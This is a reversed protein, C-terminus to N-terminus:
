PSFPVFLKQKKYIMYSLIHELKVTIVKMHYINDLESKREIESLSSVSYDSEVGCRWM